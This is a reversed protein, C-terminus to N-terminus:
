QTLCCGRFCGAKRAGFLVSVRCDVTGRVAVVERLSLICHFGM